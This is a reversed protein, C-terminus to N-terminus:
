QSRRVQQTQDNIFSNNDLRLRRKEKGSLLSESSLAKILIQYRDQGEIVWERGLDKLHKFRCKILKDFRISASTRSLFDLHLRVEIGKLWENRAPKSNIKVGQITNGEVFLALILKADEEGDPDLCRYVRWVRANRVPM